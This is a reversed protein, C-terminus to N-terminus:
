GLLQDLDLDDLGASPPPPPPPELQSVPALEDVIEPEPASLTGQAIQIERILEEKGRGVVGLPDAIARLGKLGETAAVERLASESWLRITPEVAPTAPDIPDDSVVFGTPPVSQGVQYDGIGQISLTLDEPPTPAPTPANPDFGYREILRQRGAAIEALRRDTSSSTM